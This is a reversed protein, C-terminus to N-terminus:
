VGGGGGGWGGIQLLSHEVFDFHKFVNWLFYSLNLTERQNGFFDSSYYLQIGSVNSHNLAVPFHFKLTVKFQKFPNESVREFIM